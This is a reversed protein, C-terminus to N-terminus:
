ARDVVPAPGIRFVDAFTALLGPDGAIRVAGTAVAEDPRLEGAMLAKLQSGTEIVLDAAALPGGAADLSRDGIRAHVVVEGVRIEYSARVACAAEPRFTSCLALVLSDVTVIEDPRPEGLSRAGWRGLRKVIDDLERGYETLEYVVAGSPRPLVRRRAVGARELDKLRAALVNTPIAPLGRRLDTFRKPGLILDRVVLLGWREGVLELARALGCFQGYSRAAVRRAYDGNTSM